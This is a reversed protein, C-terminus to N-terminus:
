EVRSSPEAVVAAASYDAAVVSVVFEVLGVVVAAAVISLWLVTYELVVAVVAATAAVVVSGVWKLLM